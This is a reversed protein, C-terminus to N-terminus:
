TAAQGALLREPDLKSAPIAMEMVIRAMLAPDLRDKSMEMIEQISFAVALSWQGRPLDYHRLVRVAVPFIERAFNQASDGPMHAPPLDAIGFSDTGLTGAVRRFIADPNPLEAAGLKQAMGGTLGWISYTDQAVLRNIEDGLWFRGGDRTDAIVVGPMGPKLSGEAVRGAVDFTACFGALAGLGGLMSEIRVGRDDKFWTLASATLDKGTMVARITPDDKEHDAIARKMAPIAPPEGAREPAPQVPKGTNAAGRKKWGFVM